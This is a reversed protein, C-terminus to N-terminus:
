LTPYAAPAYQREYKEQCAICRKATPYAQLREFSIESGCDTCVGYQGNKIRQFAAEIDRLEEVHHDLAALNFDALINAASEDGSDSPERTFLDIPHDGGINELEHRVEMLLAQYDKKLPLVLQDLQSPNLATM